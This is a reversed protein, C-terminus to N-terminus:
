KHCKNVEKRKEEIEIEELLEDILDSMESARKKYYESNRIADIIQREISELKRRRSTWDAILVDDHNKKIEDCIWNSYEGAALGYVCALEYLDEASGSVKLNGINITYIKNDM